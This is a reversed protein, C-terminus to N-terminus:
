NNKLIKACLENVYATDRSEQVIWINKVQQENVPLRKLANTLNVNNSPKSLVDATEKAFNLHLPFNVNTHTFKFTDALSKKYAIVEEISAKCLCRYIADNLKDESVKTHDIVSRAYTIAVISKAYKFLGNDAEYKRWVYIDYRVLFNSELSIMFIMKDEENTIVNTFM